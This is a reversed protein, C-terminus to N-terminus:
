LVMDTVEFFKGSLSKLSKILMIRPVSLKLLHFATIEAIRTASYKICNKTSSENEDLPILDALTDLFVMASAKILILVVLESGEILLKSIGIQSKGTNSLRIILHTSLV